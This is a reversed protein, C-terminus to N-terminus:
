DEKLQYNNTKMVEKINEYFCEDHFDEDIDIAYLVLEKQLEAIARTIERASYESKMQTRVKLADIDVFVNQLFSTLVKIEEVVEKDANTEGYFKLNKTLDYHEIEATVRM